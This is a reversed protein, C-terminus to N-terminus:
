AIESVGSIPKKQKGKKLFAIHKKKILSLILEYSAEMKTKGGRRKGQNKKRLRYTISYIKKNMNYFLFAITIIINIITLCHFLNDVCYRLMTFSTMATLLTQKGLFIANCCFIFFYQQSYDYCQFYQKLYKKKLKAIKINYTISYTIKNRKKYSQFFLFSILSM